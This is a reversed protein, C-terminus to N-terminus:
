ASAPGGTADAALQAAARYVLTYLTTTFVAFFLIVGLALPASAACGVLGVIIGLEPNVVALPIVLVLPMALVVLAAVPAASLLLVLAFAWWGRRFVAWARRAAQRAQVDEVAIALVMLFLALGAVSLLLSLSSQGLSLVAGGLVNLDDGLILRGLVPLLNLATLAAGLTLSLRILRLVRARGLSLAERFAVPAEREAALTVGRVTAAQLVYTLTSAAILAAVALLWVLVWQGVPWARMEILWGPELGAGAFGYEGAVWGLGGTVAAAPLAALFMLGSLAWLARNRTTIRWAHRILAGLNM